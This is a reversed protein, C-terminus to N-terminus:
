GVKRVMRFNKDSVRKFGFREYFKILKQRYEEKNEPTLDKIRNPSPTLHFEFEKGFLELLKNIVQTSLGRGRYSELTYVSRLEVKNGKFYMAYASSVVKGTTEDIIECRYAQLTKRVRLLM